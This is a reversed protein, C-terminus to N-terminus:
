GSTVAELAAREPSLPGRAREGDRTSCRCHCGSHEPGLPGRQEWHATQTHPCLGPPPSTPIREPSQSSSVLDCLLSLLTHSKHQSTSLFAEPLNRFTGSYPSSMFKTTLVLAVQIFSPKRSGFVHHPYLCLTLLVPSPCTSGLASSVSPLFQFLRNESESLLHEPNRFLWRSWLSECETLSYCTMNVGRDPRAQGLTRGPCHRGQRCGARLSRVKPHLPQKRGGLEEGRGLNSSRVKCNNARSRLPAVLSILWWKVNTAGSTLGITGWPPPHRLFRFHIQGEGPAALSLVSRGTWVDAEFLSLLSRSLPLFLSLLPM